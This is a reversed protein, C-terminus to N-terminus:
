KVDQHSCVCCATFFLMRRARKGILNFRFYYRPQSVLSSGVSGGQGEFTPSALQTYFWMGGCHPNHIRDTYLEEHSSQWVYGLSLERLNTLSTYRENAGIDMWQEDPTVTGYGLKYGRILVSENAPKWTLIIERAFPQVQLRLPRSPPRSEVLFAVGLRCGIWIYQNSWCLRSSFIQRVIESITTALLFTVLLETLGLVISAWNSTLIRLSISVDPDDSFM